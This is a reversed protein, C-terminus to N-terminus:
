LQGMDRKYQEVMINESVRNDFAKMDEPFFEALTDMMIANSNYKVGVKQAKDSFV